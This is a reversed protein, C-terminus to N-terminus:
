KRFFGLVLPEDILVIPDDRDIAIAV